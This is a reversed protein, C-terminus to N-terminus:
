RMRPDVAALLLDALLNGLVVLMASVTTAAMVVPYDRGSVAEVLLRGVGPWAFVAEVFVAGSFLAPLSLGLLTVVPVLANRLVHIVRIRAETLGRARLAQVFPAGAVDRMAGRVYRAIGGVGILTLTALPLALHRLRDLLRAGPSLFDADLGAAGFAPLVRLQYTFVLILMLALWYGPMAYLAVSLASLATDTRRGAASQIVGLSVGLLYTFALSLAVLLATAPWARSLMEAVPRGTALSEGWHGAVARRLWAAYQVPLPRDLGLAARRAELQEPTAAPGVLHLAPDGPALHLLLFTLTVAGVVVALGTALRLLVRRWM